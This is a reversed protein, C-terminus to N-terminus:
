VPVVVCWDFDETDLHSRVSTGLYTSVQAWREWSFGPDRVYNFTAREGPRPKRFELTVRTGCAMTVIIPQVITWGQGKIYEYTPESM